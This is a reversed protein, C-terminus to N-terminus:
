NVLIGCIGYLSNLFPLSRDFLIGPYLSVVSDLSSGCYHFEEAYMSAVSTLPLVSYMLSEAM